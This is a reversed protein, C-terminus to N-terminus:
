RYIDRRHGIRIVLVQLVEDQLNAIVRYDDIRYRWYNGLRSGVLPKGARRPDLLVREHLYRLIREITRADLRALAKNAGGSFEIRWGM